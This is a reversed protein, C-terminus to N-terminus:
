LFSVWVFFFFSSFFHRHRKHSGVLSCGTFSMTEATTATVAQDAVLCVGGYAGWSIQVIHIESFLYGYFLFHFPQYPQKNAQSAVKSTYIYLQIVKKSAFTQHIYARKHKNSDPIRRLVPTNNNSPTRYWADEGCFCAEDFNNKKELCLGDM